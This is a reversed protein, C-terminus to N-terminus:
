RTDGGRARDIGRLDAVARGIAACRGPCYWRAPEGTGSVEIRLMGRQPTPQDAALSGCGDATCEAVVTMDAAPRPVGALGSNFAHKAKLQGPSTEPLRPRQARSRM